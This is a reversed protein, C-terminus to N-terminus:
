GRRSVLGEQRHAGQNWVVTKNKMEVVVVVM